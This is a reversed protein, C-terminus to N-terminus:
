ISKKPDPVTDPLKVPVDFRPPTPIKAVTVNKDLADVVFRVTPEPASSIAGGKNDTALFKVFLPM